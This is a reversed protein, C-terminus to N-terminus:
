DTARTASGSWADGLGYARVLGFRRVREIELPDLVPFMQHSRTDIITQTPQSMTAGLEKGATLSLAGIGVGAPPRAAASTAMRAAIDTTLAWIEGHLIRKASAIGQM